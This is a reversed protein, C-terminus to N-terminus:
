MTPGVFTAGIGTTLMRVMITVVMRSIRKIM